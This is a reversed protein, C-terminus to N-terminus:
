FFMLLGPLILLVLWGFVRVVLTPSPGPILKSGSPGLLSGLEGAFWISVIPVILAAAMFLITGADAYLYSGILYAICLLLSVIKEIM